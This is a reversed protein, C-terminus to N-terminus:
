DRVVLSIGMSCMQKTRMSHGGQGPVTVHAMCPTVIHNVQSVVIADIFDTGGQSHNLESFQLRVVLAAALKCFDVPFDQLFKCRLHYYGKCIMGANRRSVEQGHKQWAPCFLQIKHIVHFGLADLGANVIWWNMRKCSISIAFCFM